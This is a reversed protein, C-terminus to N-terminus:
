CAALSDHEGEQGDQPPPAQDHGPVFRVRAWAQVLGGAARRLDSELIGLTYRAQINYLVASFVILTLALITSYILTLRLRISM